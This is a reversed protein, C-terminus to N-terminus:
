EISRFITASKLGSDPAYWLEWVGLFPFSSNIRICSSTLFIFMMPPPSSEAGPQCCAFELGNLKKASLSPNSRDLRV